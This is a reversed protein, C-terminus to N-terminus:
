ADELDDGNRHEAHEVVSVFVDELSSQALGWESIPLEDTNKSREIREFVDAVDVSNKPLLYEVSSVVHQVKIADASVKTRVYGDVTAADETRDTRITM